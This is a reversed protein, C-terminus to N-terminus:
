RGPHEIEDEPHGVVDGSVEDRTFDGSEDGEGAGGGDTAM